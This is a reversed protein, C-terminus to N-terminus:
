RGTTATLLRSKRIVKKITAPLRMTIADAAKWLKYLGPPAVGADVIKHDGDIIRINDCTIDLLNYKGAVARIHALEQQTM